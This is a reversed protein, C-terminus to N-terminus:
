ATVEDLKAAITEAMAADARYRAKGDETLQNPARLQNLLDLRFHTLLARVLETEAHTLTMRNRGVM